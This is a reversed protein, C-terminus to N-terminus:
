KKVLEERDDAQPVQELWGHDIMLNVGDEVLLLDEGIVQTVKAALDRRFSGALSAGYYGIAYNVLLQTHFLMLKDSFPAITSNTVESEWSPPSPLNNDTLITHFIEIHKSSLDRARSIFNRVEKSQSVQAFGLMIAEKLMSKKINFDIHSIEVANIPRREGFWGTLFSQKKVFDIKEPTSIYPPRVFLGKSLKVNLSKNYLEMTSDNVHTYFDRIDARTATTLAVAYATLGNISMKNIYMLWFSDSFLRPAKLNVDEDTFGHPIPFDEDIFIQKIKDVHSQSLNLALELVARIETDEVKDLAHKIVCIAMSDSMYTTWLSAIEGSTLRISNDTEM